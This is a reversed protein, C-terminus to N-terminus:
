PGPAPWADRGSKQNKGAPAPSAVPRPFGTGIPMVLRERSTAHYRPVRLLKVGDRPRRYSGLLVCPWMRCGVWPFISGLPHFAIHHSDILVELGSLSLRHAGHFVHGASPRDAKPSKPLQSAQQQSRLCQDLVLGTRRRVPPAIQAGPPMTTMGRPPPPCSSWIQHHASM